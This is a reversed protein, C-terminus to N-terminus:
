DFRGQLYARIMPTPELEDVQPQTGTIRAVACRVADVLRTGDTLRGPFVRTSSVPMVRGEELCVLLTTCTLASGIDLDEAGSRLYDVADAGHGLLCLWLGIRGLGWTGRFESRRAELAQAHLAPVAGRGEALCVTDMWGMAVRFRFVRVFRPVDDLLREWVPLAEDARGARSLQQAGHARALWGVVTNPGVQRALGLAVEAVGPGDELRLFRAIPEEAPGTAVQACPPGPRWRARAMIGLRRQATPELEAEGVDRGAHVNRAARAFPSPSEIRALAEGYPLIPGRLHALTFAAWLCADSSGVHRFWVAVLAEAVGIETIPDEWVGAAGVEASREVLTLDPDLDLRERSGVRWGADSHEVWGRAALAHLMEQEAPSLLRGVWAEPLTEFPAVRALLGRADEGPPEVPVTPAPASGAPSPVFRLGEGHETHVHVPHRGSEGLKRRLRALTAEVARTHVNPSAQWVEELLTETSVVENPSACLRELLRRELSTLRTPTPAGHVTGTDLDVTVTSLELWRAPRM